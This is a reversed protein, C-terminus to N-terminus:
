KMISRSAFELTTAPAPDVGFSITTLYTGVVMPCRFDAHTPLAFASAILVAVALMFRALKSSM